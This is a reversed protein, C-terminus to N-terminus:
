RPIADFVDNTKSKQFDLLKNWVKTYFRIENAFLEPSRLTKSRAVNKPLGKAVIAVDLSQRNFSFLKLIFLFNAHKLPLRMSIQPNFSM